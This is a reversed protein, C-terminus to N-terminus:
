CQSINHSVMVVVVTTGPSEVSLALMFPFWLRNPSLEKRWGRPTSTQLCPPPIDAIVSVSMVVKDFYPFNVLDSYSLLRTKLFYIVYQTLWIGPFNVLDYNGM